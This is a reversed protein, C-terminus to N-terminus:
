KSATATTSAATAPASADAGSAATGSAGSAAQPEPATFNAGSQNAMYAIARAIEDDTLDPSGGRAPMANFGNIAQQILVDFGKAIRPAWENNHTVKPSNPVTSDAAHCQICIKNFVAEGSRQGAPIGDGMTISGVPKIRTNVANDTMDAVNAYYGTTALRVLLYLFAVLIVIGGLLTVMASGTAHNKQNNM